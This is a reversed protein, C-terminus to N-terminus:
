QKNKRVKEKGCSSDGCLPCGTLWADNGLSKLDYEIEENFCYGIDEDEESSPSNDKDENNEKM